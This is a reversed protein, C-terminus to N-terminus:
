LGVRIEHDGKPLNMKQVSFTTQDVNDTPYVDTWEGNPSWAEVRVTYTGIGLNMNRTYDKGEGPGLNIVDETTGGAGTITVKVPVTGANTDKRKVSIHNKVAASTGETMYKTKYPNIKAKVDYGNINIPVKKLNNEKNLEPFQSILIPNALPYSTNTGCTVYQESGNGATWNFKVTVEDGQKQFTYIQQKIIEPDWELEQNNADVLTAPYTTGGLENFGLMSVAIGWPYNFDMQTCKIVATATYKQGPQAVYNNGNKPCGPDLSVVEMDLPQAYWAKVGEESTAVVWNDSVSLEGSVGSGYGGLNKVSAIPFASFKEGDDPNILALYGNGVGELIAAGKGPIAWIAPATQARDQFQTIWNTKHTHRNISLLKGPKGPNNVAPFFITNGTIAPSRNSFIVAHDSNVWGDGTVYNYGYVRSQCDGFFVENTNPDVSFSAVLGAPLTRVMFPEKKEKLEVKGNQEQLIDDIRYIRFEGKTQGQDLGVIFGNYNGTTKDYLVPGPSSSTRGSGLSIRLNNAKSKDMPDSAIHVEATNGATYIVLEHGKWNIILPASVIDSSWQDWFRAIHKPNSFDSVDLIELHGTGTGNDKDTGIYIYKKDNKEVLTPHSKTPKSGKLPISWLPNLQQYDGFNTPLLCKYGRLTNNTVAVVLTEGKYAGLGKLILPQSYSVGSKDEWAPWLNPEVGYAGRDRENNFGFTTVEAWAPICFAILLVLSLAVTSLKRM